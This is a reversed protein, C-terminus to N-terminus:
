RLGLLKRSLEVCAKEVGGELALRLREKEAERLPSDPSTLLVAAEGFRLFWPEGVEFCWRYIEDACQRISSEDAGFVLCYRAGNTSSPCTYPHSDPGNLACATFCDNFVRIGLHLRYGPAFSYKHLHVFQIILPKCRVFFTSRRRELGLQALLPAARRLVKRHCSKETAKDV